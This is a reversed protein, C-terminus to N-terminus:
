FAACQGQKQRATNGSGSIGTNSSCQLNGTVQNSTVVTAPSNREVEMNRSVRNGTVTVGGINNRVSLNGSVTDGSLTLAGGNLQAQLNGGVATNTVQLSAQRANLQLQLNGGIRSAGCAATTGGITVPDFAGALLAPTNRALATPM